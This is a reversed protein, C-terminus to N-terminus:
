REELLHDGDLAVPLDPPPSVMRGAEVMVEEGPALKVGLMSYSPQYKIGFQM